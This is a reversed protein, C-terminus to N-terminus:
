TKLKGATGFDGDLAGTQDMKALAFYFDSSDYASGAVIIDGNSDFEGAYAVDPGGSFDVTLKGDGDFGSVAAGDSDLLVIAFDGGTASDARGVAVINGTGGTDVALDWVRDSKGTTFDIQTKGDNGFSTDMNGNQDFRSIVMDFFGGTDYGDGGVVIKGDSQLAVASAGEPYPGGTVGGIGSADFSAVGDGDTGGSGFSTDLSGDTNFRFVATDQDDTATKIAGVGVIKGDPQLVADIGGRDTSFTIYYHKVIDPPAFTKDLDGDSATDVMFTHSSDHAM